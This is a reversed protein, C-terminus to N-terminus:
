HIFDILKWRLILSGKDSGVELTDWGLSVLLRVIKPCSLITHGLINLEKESLASNTYAELRFGTFFFASNSHKYAKNGKSNSCKILAPIEGNIFGRKASDNFEQILKKRKDVDQFWSQIKQWKDM